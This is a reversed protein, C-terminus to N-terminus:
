QSHCVMHSFLPPIGPQGPAPAARCAVRGQKLWCRGPAVVTGPVAIRSGAALRAAATAQRGSARAHASACRSSSTIFACYTSTAVLELVAWYGLVKVSHTKQIGKYVAGSVGSKGLASRAAQQGHMRRVRMEVQSRCSFRTRGSSQWTPPPQNGRDM